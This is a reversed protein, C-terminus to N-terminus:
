RVNEYYMMQGFSINEDNPPLEMNFKCIFKTKSLRLIMDILTTNQFVGGSMVITEFDHKKAVEIISCALTYIFNAALQSNSINRNKALAIKEIILKSPINEYSENELYNHLGDYDIEQICNELLIAAEGEYTNLDILGLLSAVADYLRGVSSTKLTNSQRKKQYIAWETTTFKSKVVNEMEPTSVSLLSLRPEKAMKDGLIWDFYEFHTLRNITKNEYTFFEGGWIMDDDGLGTGDWIVGLIKEEYAFLKHEGLASAFHAKHHQIGFTKINFKQALREGIQTSQYAKHKDVLVADPKTEFFDLYQNIVKEYRESVEYNDLNGLYQSVYLHSNPTFSFTNKLHSGMALVKLDNTATYDLYNPALGRSRRLVIKQYSEPAFKVVSDDQPHVIDLDHHVFYDAVGSLKDEAENAESIIPSGSINGSTAVIPLNLSRTLLYLIGSYPLMIGIQNLSPAVETLAVSGQYGHSSIIVIPNLNSTLEREQENTVPLDLKLLKLDPYMIAFPKTPRKKRARLSRIAQPNTADCCLLYGSTNKIAVIKGQQIYSAIKDIIKEKTIEIKSGKKDHIYLSIGCNPCSNTQSHFRRDKPNTYEELCNECMTFKRLSTNARDFPFKVTLAYRPGCNVCTVFPYNYRRNSQDIIESKCKECIGFDPTLPLNIKTSKPINIIKFSSFAKHEVENFSTFQILSSPPQNQKIEDFFPQIKGKSINIIILVGQENNTVIGNYGYKTALNYIFPRFGVGQVRGSILIQFTKDFEQKHRL